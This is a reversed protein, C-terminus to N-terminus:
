RPRTTGAPRRPPGLRLRTLVAPRALGPMILAWMASVQQHLADREALALALLQVGSYCGVLTRAAEGPDVHDQLEDADRASELAATVAGLSAAYSDATQYPGPEISLRVAARLVPDELIGATYHHSIDILAQLWLEPVPGAAMQESVQKFYDHQHSLIADGLDEKSAFHHYFGGRSVNALRQIEPTTAGAYGERDFVIGAAEVIRQVTREGREQM